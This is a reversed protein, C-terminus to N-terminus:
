QGGSLFAKGCERFIICAPDYSLFISGHLPYGADTPSIEPEVSFLPFHPVALDLEWKILVLPRIYQSAAGVKHQKALRDLFGLADDKSSTWPRPLM